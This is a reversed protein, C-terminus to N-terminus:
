VLERFCVYKVLNIPVKSPLSPFGLLLISYRIALPIIVIDVMEEYYIKMYSLLLVQVKPLPSQSSLPLAWKFMCSREGWFQEIMVFCKFGKWCDIQLNHGFDQGVFSKQGEIHMMPDKLSRNKHRTQPFLTAVNGM